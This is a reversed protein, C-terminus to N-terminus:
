FSLAVRGTRISTGRDWLNKVGKRTAELKIVEKQDVNRKSAGQEEDLADTTKVKNSENAEYTGKGQEKDLAEATSSAKKSEDAEHSGEQEEDLADVTSAENSQESNGQEEDLTNTPSAKNANSDDATVRTTGWSFDDMKWFSYLPLVFYFVPVGVIDSVNSYSIHSLLSCIHCGCRVEYGVFSFLNSVFFSHM